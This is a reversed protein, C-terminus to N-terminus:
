QKHQKTRFNEESNTQRPNTQNKDAGILCASVAAQQQHIHQVLDRQRLHRLLEKRRALLPGVELDLHPCCLYIVSSLYYRLGALCARVWPM